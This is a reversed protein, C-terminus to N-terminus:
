TEVLLTRKPFTRTPFVPVCVIVTDLVPFLARVILFIVHGEPNEALQVDLVIADFPDSGRVMVNVGVLAFANLPFRTMSDSALLPVLLVRVSEPVPTALGSGLSLM